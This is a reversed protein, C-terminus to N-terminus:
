LAKPPSLTDVRGWLVGGGLSFPLFFFIHCHNYVFGACLNVKLGGGLQHVCVDPLLDVCVKRRAGLLIKERRVLLGVGGCVALRPLKALSVGNILDHGGRLDRPCSLSWM